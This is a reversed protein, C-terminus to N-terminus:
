DLLSHLFQYIVRLQNETALQLMKQIAELLSETTEMFAESEGCMSPRFEENKYYYLTHNYEIRLLLLISNNIEVKLTEFTGDFPSLMHYLLELVYEM